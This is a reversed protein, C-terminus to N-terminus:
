SKGRRPKMDHPLPKPNGGRCNPQMLFCILGYSTGPSPPFQGEACLCHEPSLAPVMFRSVADMCPTFSEYPDSCPHPPFRIRASTDGPAGGGEGARLFPQCCASSLALHSQHPLIHLPSSCSSSSHSQTPDAPSSLSGSPLPQHRGRSWGSNDWWPQIGRREGAALRDPIRSHSVAGMGSAQVRPKGPSLQGDAQLLFCPIFETDQKVPM